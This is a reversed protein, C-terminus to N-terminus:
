YLRMRAEDTLEVLDAFTKAISEPENPDTIEDANIDECHDDYRIVISDVDVMTIRHPKNCRPDYDIKLEFDRRLDQVGILQHRDNYQYRVLEGSPNSAEVLDLREDYKYHTERHVVERGFNNRKRLIVEVPEDHGPEYAIRYEMNSETDWRRIIRGKVDYSYRYLLGNIM